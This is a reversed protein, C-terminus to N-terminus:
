VGAPAGQSGGGAGGRARGRLDPLLDQEPRKLQIERDDIRRSLFMVRYFEVLEAKELKASALAKSRNPTRTAM